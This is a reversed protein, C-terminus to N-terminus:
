KIHLSWITMFMGPLFLSYELRKEEANVKKLYERVEVKGAYIPYYEVDFFAWESPAFRRVGAAVCADILSKQSMNGPDNHVLIFSLVTDIGRLSETLQQKDEYNVKTWTLGHAIDAQASEKRSLITVEHRSDAKIAEVIEEALQGLGAIAVKVM